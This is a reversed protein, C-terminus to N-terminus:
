GPRREHCRNQRGRPAVGEIGVFILTANRAAPKIGIEHRDIKIRAARLQPHSQGPQRRHYKHFAHPTIGGDHRWRMKPAPKSRAERQM